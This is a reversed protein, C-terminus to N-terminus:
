QQILIENGQGGRANITLGNTTLTSQGSVTLVYSQIGTPLNSRFVISGPNQLVMGSYICPVTSYTADFVATDANGPVQQPSWNAAVNWAASAQGAAANWYVSAPVVRTELTELCPRCRNALPDNLPPSLFRLLKAFM